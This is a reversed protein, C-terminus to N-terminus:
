FEGETDVAILAGVDYGAFKEVAEYVSANESITYDMEFYCSKKWADMVSGRKEATGFCAKQTAQFAAGKFLTSRAVQTQQVLSKSIQRSIM